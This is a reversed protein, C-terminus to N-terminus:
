KNTLRRLIEENDDACQKLYRKLADLTEASLKKRRKKQMEDLLVISEIDKEAMEKLLAITYELKEEDRSKAQLLDAILM